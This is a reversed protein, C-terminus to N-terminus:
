TKAHVDRRAIEARLAEADAIGMWFRIRTGSGVLTGFDERVTFQEVQDWRLRRWGWPTRQAIEDASVQICAVHYRWWCWLVVAWVFLAFSWSPGHAVLGAQALTLSLMPLLALSTPLLLLARVTRTRYHFVREGVGECGSSWRSGVGGLVEQQATDWCQSKAATAHDAIVKQLVRFGALPATFSFSGQRTTVLCPAAVSLGARPLLRYDQIDTWSSDLCMGEREHRIGERSVTIKDRRRHWLDETSRFILYGMLAMPLLGFLLAACSALGWGTGLQVFTRAIGHCAHFLLMLLSVVFLGCLVPMMRNDSTNYDFTHPWDRNPRTGWVDWTQCDAATAQKNIIARPADTHSWLDGRLSLREQGAAVVMLIVRQKNVPWREYYDTIDAWAAVHWRGLGRWRLGQADALVVARRLYFAMGVGIALCLAYLIGTAWDQQSPPSSQLLALGCGGSGGFIVVLLWASKDPRCRITTHEAM